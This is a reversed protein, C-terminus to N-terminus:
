YAGDRSIVARVTRILIALDLALSWNDVYRLDLGIAQEWPLNSRGSVQWLGTIGPKLVMRRRADDDYRAVENPLAPRPGVLAM